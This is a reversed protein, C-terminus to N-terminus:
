CILVGAWHFKPIFSVSLRLGDARSAVPAVTEFHNIDNIPHHIFVDRDVAYIVYFAFYQGIREDSPRFHVDRLVEHLQRYFNPKKQTDHSITVALVLVSVKFYPLYRGSGIGPIPAPNVRIDM